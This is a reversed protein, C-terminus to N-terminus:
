KKPRLITLNTYSYNLKNIKSDGDKECFSECLRRKDLITDEFEKPLLISKNSSHGLFDLKRISNLSSNRFNQPLRERAEFSNIILKKNIEDISEVIKRQSLLYKEESEM